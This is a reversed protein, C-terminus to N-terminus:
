KRNFETYGVIKTESPHRDGFATVFMYREIRQYNNTNITIYADNWCTDFYYVTGDSFTIKNWAHEEQLGQSTRATGGIFECNIGVTRCLIEFVQAYANCIAKGEFFGDLSVNKGEYDYEVQNCIYENFKAIADKQLMGKEIDLTRIVKQINKYYGKKPLEKKNNITEPIHIFYKSLENQTEDGCYVSVEYYRRLYFAKAYETAKTFGITGLELYETNNNNLADLLRADLEAFEGSMPKDHLLYLNEMSVTDTNKANSLEKYELGEQKNFDEIIKDIDLNTIPKLGEGNGSPLQVSINNNNGNTAVTDSQSSTVVNQTKTTVTDSTPNGDKKSAQETVIVTQGESFVTESFFSEEVTLVDKCGVLSFILMLSLGLSIIRKM